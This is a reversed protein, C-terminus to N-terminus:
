VMLVTNRVLSIGWHLILKLNLCTQFFIRSFKRRTRDLDQKNNVLRGRTYLEKFQESIQRLDSGLKRFKEEKKTEDWQQYNMSVATNSEEELELSIRDKHSLYVRASEPSQSSSSINPMSKSTDKNNTQARYNILKLRSTDRRKLHEM